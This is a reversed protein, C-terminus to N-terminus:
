MYFSDHVYRLYLDYFYVSFNHRNDTRIFHYLYTEYLFPYGYFCYCVAALAVFCGGSVVSFVLRDRTIFSLVSKTSNQRTSIPSYNEDLFVLIALAYVIPYIKFHVALGYVLASAIVYRRYLLHLSALVFLGILADANGRTSVNISFPHFLWVSMYGIAHAQKIQRARLIRFLLEGIVIDATIFVVKGFLEHVFINPLLLFARCLRYLFHHNSRCSRYTPLYVYLLPTYRYTTRAFPTDGEAMARAADTYVAYDVDTYKVTMHEDQWEGYLVLMVRIAFAIGAVRGRTIMHM